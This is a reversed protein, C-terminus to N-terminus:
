GRLSASFQEVHAILDGKALDYAFTDGLGSDGLLHKENLVWERRSCMRRHGEEMAARALNGLAGVENHRRAHMLAYDLSFNRQFEWRQTASIALAEPYELNSDLTGFVVTSLAVEATLTYSPFGALYGLLMDVEYEGRAAKDTWYEVSDMDRFLVDIDVNDVSLWAGGNM